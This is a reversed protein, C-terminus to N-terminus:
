RRIKSLLRLIELYLWVLTLILGFASYWEMYKPAGTKAAEDIFSFDLILNFSAIIVIVLSIGIGIPGGDHIYPMTAGFMNMIFSALYVVAVGGTAIVVGSKFKETAKIMKTKYAFLMIGLISLTVLVAQLIIGPLVANYMMSIAGLFFGEAAAYLPATVYAYKKAFITIMALVFGLIASPWLYMSILNSGAATLNWSFSATAVLILFLIITKNAAGSITMSGEGVQERFANKSLAPNSTSTFRM